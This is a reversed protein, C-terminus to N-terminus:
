IKCVPNQAAPLFACLIVYQGDPATGTNEVASIFQRYEEEQRTRKALTEEVVRIASLVGQVTNPIEYPNPLHDEYFCRDYLPHMPDHPRFANLEELQNYLDGLRLELYNIESSYSADPRFSQREDLTLALQSFYGM